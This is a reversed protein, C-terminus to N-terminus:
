AGRARMSTVAIAIITAISAFAGALLLPPRYRWLISHRGPPVAVSRFVGSTLMKPREVGDVIVRWGPADNQTLVVVGNQPVTVRLQAHAPGFTLIEPAGIEKGMVTYALPLAGIARYAIVHGARALPMFRDGPLPISALVYGVGMSSAVEPRSLAQEYLKAYKKSTVPAATWADFRGDYLNLYGAIWADREAGVRRPERALRLIKADRGLTRDFPVRDRRLPEAHLLSSSATVLEAVAAILLAADLWRAHRIRNWGIVAFAVMALAGIPVVRAPYRFLTVPLDVIAPPGAAILMSIVLLSVWAGLQLWERSRVLTAFGVMALACISVGLYVVPVYHQSLRPDYAEGVLHPPVAVRLWELVPMSDRLVDASRFGARRDSDRLMELFPLLQVASLGVSTVGALAIDRMRRVIVAFILAAIAALFPEGALFSLALLVAARLTKARRDRLDLAAGIIWPLWAFAALNNQVDLMSLTPGCVMLAAAGLLAAGRAAFRAFMLYAGCGLLTLHFLLYLMYASEFPLAVFIWAPPYFVGTQPNALWPEGSASYPNWLPLHFSRLHQATYYRLPQFYDTHDRFTFVERRVIPVAFLMSALIVIAVLALRHDRM